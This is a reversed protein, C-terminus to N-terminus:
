TFFETVGFRSHLIRSLARLLLRVIQPRHFVVLILVSRQSRYSSNKDQLFNRQCKEFFNPNKIKPFHHFKLQGADQMWRVCDRLLVDDHSHCEVTGVVLDEGILFHLSM